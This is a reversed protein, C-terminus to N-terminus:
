SVSAPVAVTRVSDPRKGAFPNDASIGTDVTASAGEGVTPADPQGGAGSVGPKDHVAITTEGNNIAEWLKELKEMIAIYNGSNFQAPNKSAQIDLRQLIIQYKHAAYHLPNAPIILNQKPDVWYANLEKTDLNLLSEQEAM